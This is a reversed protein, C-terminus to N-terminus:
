GTRATVGEKAVQIIPTMSALKRSFAALRPRFEGECRPSLEHVEFREELGMRKLAAILVEFQRVAVDRGQPLKCDKEPCVVGMVGDFGCRFANTVHVPDLGKFCPVEMLVAGEDRLVDPFDLASYESWQCSFVLIAPKGRTRLASPAKGYSALVDAFEYGRVQIADHPCVLQCAGCGVCREINITPSSFSEAEIAQYPCVFVCKDCGVCKDNSWVARRAHKVVTLTEPPYGLQELVLGALIMRRTEIETGEKMRCFRDPCQISVIRNVGAQLAKFTFDTPIRGACPVRLPLHSEAPVGVAALIDAVEGNSPSSGRCMTVLADVRGRQMASKVYELLHDYDYYAMDIATVPCASYCIGCVQCKQNNIEVKGTEPDRDIAEFPCLSHCVCCRSCREQVIKVSALCSDGM